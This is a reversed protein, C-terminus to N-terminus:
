YNQEKIFDNLQRALEKLQDFDRFSMSLDDNKNKIVIAYAEETLKSIEFSETNTM